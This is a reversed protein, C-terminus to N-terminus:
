HGLDAAVKTLQRPVTEEGTKERSLKVPEALVVALKEHVVLVHITQARDLVYV